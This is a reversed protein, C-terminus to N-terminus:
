GERPEVQKSVDIKENARAVEATLSASERLAADKAKQEELRAEKETSLANGVALM